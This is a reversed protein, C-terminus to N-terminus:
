FVGRMRADAGAANTNGGFVVRSGEPSWAYFLRGFVVGGLSFTLGAGFTHKVDHDLDSLQQGVTGVDGFAFVGVPYSRVGHAYEFQALLIDPARFRYDRYGALGAGGSIDSGGLTPQLYFPVRDGHHPVSASLRIGTSFMGVDVTTDPTFRHFAGVDTRTFSYAAGTAEQYRRITAILSTSYGTITEDEPYRWSVGAGPVAYTTAQGLGPVTEASFHREISPAGAGTYPRPSAHFGELQGFVLFGHGAPREVTARANSADLAFRAEDGGSPSGLGFFALQQIHAHRAEFVANTHRNTRSPSSGVMNLVAGALWSANISVRGEVNSSFRLPRKESAWAHNLVAGAALGNGPAITGVV